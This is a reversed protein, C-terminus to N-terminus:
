PFVQTPATVGIDGTGGPELTNDGGPGGAGALATTLDPTGGTPATGIYAIAIAHGGRGGGANGGAGGAGGKGGSCADVVAGAGTGGAGIAGGPQGFQGPGGQGGDGGAGVHLVVSSSMTVTANLSVLAFSSGGGAGPVGGAGGCGGAGGAGGGAGYTTSTAKSGGGGGGSTGHEGPQGPDGDAPTFGNSTLSGLETAGGGIPGNDGSTGGGGLGQGAVCNLTAGTQGIGPDGGAGSDGLTGNGGDKVAQDKDGGKGGFGGQLTTAGCSNDGGSANTPANAPMTGANVGASGGDAASAQSLQAPPAAGNAGDGAKLDSEDVDLTADSVLLAISSAGASTASPSEVDISWLKSEGRGAIKLAPVDADGVIKPHAASKSSEWNACDLGGFISVGGAIEVSDAFTDGGCVYIAKSGGLSTSADVITGFPSAQTGDGSAGSKVFVGCTAPIAVGESPTCDTPLGGGGGQGAGGVNGGGTSTTAGGAGGSGSPCIDPYEECATGYCGSLLLSSVILRLLM